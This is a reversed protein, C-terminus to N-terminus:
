AVFKFHGMNQTGATERFYSRSKVSSAIQRTWGKQPLENSCVEEEQDGGRVTSQLPLIKLHVLCILYREM